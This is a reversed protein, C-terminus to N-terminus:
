ENYGGFLSSVFLTVGLITSVMFLGAYFSKKWFGFALGTLMVNLFYILEPKM